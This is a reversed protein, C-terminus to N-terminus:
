KQNQWEEKYPTCFRSNFISSYRITDFAYGGGMDLLKKIFPKLSEDLTSLRVEENEPGTFQVYQAFELDQKPSSLSFKITDEGVKVSGTMARGNFFTYTDEEIKTSSPDLEKKIKNAFDISKALGGLQPNDLYTLKEFKNEKLNIQAAFGVVGDISFIVQNENTLGSGKDDVFSIRITSIDNFGLDKLGLDEYLQEKIKTVDTNEIYKYRQLKTALSEEISADPNHLSNGGGRKLEGALDGIVQRNLQETPRKKPLSSLDLKSLDVKNRGIETMFFIYGLTSQFIM